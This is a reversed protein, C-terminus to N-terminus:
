RFSSHTRKLESELAVREHSEAASKIRYRPDNPNADSAPLLHRIEFQGTAARRLSNKMLDVSQGVMFKHMVIIEKWQRKAPNRQFRETV